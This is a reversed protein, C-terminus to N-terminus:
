ATTIRHTRLMREAQLINNALAHWLMVAGVKARGRVNFRILNWNRWHAHICECIARTRYQLKGHESAMRSRWARVGPGDGTKAQYPDGGHKSKTPPCYVEIGEDHAWEIDHAATFGGDALHREPLRGFRTRFKDLIPRILGRDSGEACPTVGAVIPTGAISVVQGNWAPRFGGDAMKLIRV